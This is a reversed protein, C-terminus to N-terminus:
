PQSVGDAYGFHEIPNKAKNRMTLGFEVGVKAFEELDERKESLRETLVEVRDDAFILLAHIPERFKPEWQEFPPDELDAKRMGGQFAKKFGDTRLGLYKYGEASLCVSAFSELPYGAARFREAQRLQEAASTIKDAFQRLFNKVEAEEGPKFSLFLHLAAGRGHSKLINGQLNELDNGYARVEAEGLPRDLEFLPTNPM